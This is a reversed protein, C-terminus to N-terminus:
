ENEGGENQDGQAMGRKQDKEYDEVAKNMEEFAESARFRTYMEENQQLKSLLEKAAKGVPLEMLVFAQYSGNDKEYIERQRPSTGRLIQSTVTKQTQTYQQRMDDNVEETFSKTMGEVRTELRNAIEGRAGTVAKDLALQMKRSTASQASFVYNPDDPPNIFWEPMEEEETVNEKGGCAILSVALLALGCLSFIRKLSVSLSDM